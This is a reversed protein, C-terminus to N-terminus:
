YDNNNRIFCCKSIYLGIFLKCMPWEEKPTQKNNSSFKRLKFLNVTSELLGLRGGTYDTAALIESVSNVSDRTGDSLDVTVALQQPLRYMKIKIKM